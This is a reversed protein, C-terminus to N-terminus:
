FKRGKKWGISIYDDLLNKKVLMRSVGNNIWCTGSREMSWKAKLELSHTKNYFANKDGSVDAHNKKINEKHLDSFKRGSLSESVKSYIENKKDLSMTQHRHSVIQSMKENFGLPMKGKKLKSKEGIIKKTDNTLIAGYRPSLEGTKSFMPNLEGPMPAISKNDTKNIWINSEVVKMRRLVKHEWARAQGADNFIKRIQIIDPTGFEKIMKKVFASSTFYKVFLEDPSCNKAYRVGYYFKYQDKWGILYTYPTTM